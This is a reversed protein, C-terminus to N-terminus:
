PGRERYAYERQQKDRFDIGLNAAVQVPFDVLECTLWSPYGGTAREFAACCGKHTFCIPTPDDEMRWEVNGDRADDIPLGCWDCRVVPCYLGGKFMMDLPM